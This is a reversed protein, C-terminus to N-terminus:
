DSALATNPDLRSARRAPFVAAFLSVIVVIATASVFTAIDRTGVEYVM